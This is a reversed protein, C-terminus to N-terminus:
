LEEKALRDAIEKLESIDIKERLWRVPARASSVDLSLVTISEIGSRM